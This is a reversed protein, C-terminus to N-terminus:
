IFCGSTRQVVPRPQLNYGLPSCVLAALCPHSVLYISKRVAGKRSPTTGSSVCTPITQAVMFSNSIIDRAKLNSGSVVAVTHKERPNQM